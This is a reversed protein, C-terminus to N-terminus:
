QGLEAQLWRRATRWGREITAESVQLVHATEEITLGGFFRLEVVRVLEPDFTELRELAASLDIIDTGSDELVGILDDMGSEGHLEQARGRARRSRAHDVLVCRM